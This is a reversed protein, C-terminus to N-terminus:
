NGSMNKLSALERAIVGLLDSLQRSQLSKGNVFVSPTGRVGIRRGENIDGLILARIEPSKTDSQWRTMDLKLEKAISEIKEDNLANYNKMLATHFEFFKGQNHAAMAGMSAPFAFRHSKLPFQKVM